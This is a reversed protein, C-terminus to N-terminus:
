LMLQSLMIGFIYHDLLGLLHKVELLGHNGRIM